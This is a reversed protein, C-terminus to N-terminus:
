ARKKRNDNHYRRWMRPPFVVAFLVRNTGYYGAVAILRGGDAIM